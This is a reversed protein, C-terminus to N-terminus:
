LNLKRIVKLPIRPWENQLARELHRTNNVDHYKRVQGHLNDSYQIASLDPSSAPWQLMNVNYLRLLYMHKAHRATHPCASVHQFIGFNRQQMFPVAVLQITEDCYRQATLNGSVTVHDTEGDHLFISFREDM